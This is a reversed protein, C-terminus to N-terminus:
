AGFKPKNINVQTCRSRLDSINGLDCALRGESEEVRLWAEVHGDAFVWADGRDFKYGGKMRQYEDGNVEVAPIGEDTAFLYQGNAKFVDDALIQAFGPTSAMFDHAAHAKDFFTESFSLVVMDPDCGEWTTGGVVEAAIEFKQEAM